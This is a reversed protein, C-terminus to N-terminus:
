MYTAEERSRNKWLVKVLPIVRNRLQKEKYGVIGIPEEVYSLDDAIEVLEDRLVHSPDSRYALPGVNELIEYPGIYRPSLKGKKGFKLIGKWPSVRLFVKEGVEYEMELRHQDIYNKQRDPSVSSRYKRGYLAGYPAMGISRHHQNNYTFEILAIYENWSGKLELVCARLM